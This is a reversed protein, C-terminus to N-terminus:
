RINDNGIRYDAQKQINEAIMVGTISDRKHMLERQTMFAKENDGIYRYIDCRLLYREKMNPLNEVDKLAKEPNGDLM